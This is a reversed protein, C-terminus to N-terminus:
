LPMLVPVTLERMSIFFTKMVKRARAPRPPPPPPPPCFAVATVTGADGFLPDREQEAHPKADGVLLLAKKMGNDSLLGSAVSLGYTWGSCGLSIDLAYCEKSLGLRDQLICATAPLIYDASQSVFILADVDGKEWSLDSLLQLTAEYCLDSTTFNGIRKKEIGTARVFDASDYDKSLSNTVVVQKPVAASFGVIQINKFEFFAM